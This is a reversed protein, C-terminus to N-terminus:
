KNTSQASQLWALGLQAPTPSPLSLPRMEAKALQSRFRLSECHEQEANTKGNISNLCHFTIKSNQMHGLRTARWLIMMFLLLLLLLAFLRVRVRFQLLHVVYLPVHGICGCIFPSFLSRFSFRVFPFLPPALTLLLPMCGTSADKNNCCENGCRTCCGSTDASLISFIYKGCFRRSAVSCAAPLLCRRRLTADRRSPQERSM